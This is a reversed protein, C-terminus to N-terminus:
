ANIEVRDVVEGGGALAIAALALLLPGAGLSDDVFFGAAEHGIERM